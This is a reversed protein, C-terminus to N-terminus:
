IQSCVSDLWIGYTALMGYVDMLHYKIFGVRSRVNGEEDNIGEQVNRDDM